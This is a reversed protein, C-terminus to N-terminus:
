GEEKDEQAPTRWGDWVAPNARLMEYCEQIAMAHSDVNALDWWAGEFPTEVSMAKVYELKESLTATDSPNDPPTFVRKSQVPEGTPVLPQQQPQAEAAEELNAKLRDLALAAKAFITDVTLSVGLYLRSLVEEAKDLAQKENTM